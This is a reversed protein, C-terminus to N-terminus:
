SRMGTMRRDARWGKVRRASDIKWGEAESILSYICPFVSGDRAIFFVQMIARRGRWEYPGFEVREAKLMRGYDSQIMASFQALSLQQKFGASTQSYASIYNNARCAQLQQQVLGFLEAPKLQEQRRERYYHILAATACVSFFFLLWSIKGRQSM